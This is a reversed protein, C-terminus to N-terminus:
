HAELSWFTGSKKWSTAFKKGDDEKVIMINNVKKMGQGRRLVKLRLLNAPEMPQVATRNGRSSNAVSSGPDAPFAM